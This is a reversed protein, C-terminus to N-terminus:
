GDSCSPLFSERNDSFRGINWHGTKESFNTKRCCGGLKMDEEAFNEPSQMRRYFRELNTVLHRLHATRYPSSVNEGSSLTKM